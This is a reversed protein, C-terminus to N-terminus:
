DSLLSLNGSIEAVTYVLIVVLTFDKLHKQYM